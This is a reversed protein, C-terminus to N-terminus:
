DWQRLMVLNRCIIKLGNTSCIIPIFFQCHRCKNKDRRKFNELWFKSGKRIITCWLEWRMNFINLAMERYQCTMVLGLGTFLLISTQPVRTGHGCSSWTNFIKLSTKMWAYISNQFFWIPLRKLFMPSILKILTAGIGWLSTLHSSWM